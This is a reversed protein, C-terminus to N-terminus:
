DLLNGELARLEHSTQTGVDWGSMKGVMSDSTFHFEISLRLIVPNTFM